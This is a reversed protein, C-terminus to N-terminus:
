WSSSITVSRHNLSNQGLVRRSSYEPAPPGLDVLVCFDDEGIPAKFVSGDERRNWRFLESDATKTKVRVHITRDEKTAIIDFDRAGRPTLGALWGRRLLEGMTFYEGAAGIVASRGAKVDGKM